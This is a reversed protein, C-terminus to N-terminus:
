PLDIHQGILIVLIMVVSMVSFKNRSDDLLQFRKVKDAYIVGITIGTYENSCVLSKIRNTLHDSKTIIICKRCRSSVTEM